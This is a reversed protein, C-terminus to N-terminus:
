SYLPHSNAQVRVWSWHLKLHEHWSWKSGGFGVLYGCAWASAESHDRGVQLPLPHRAFVWCLLLPLNLAGFFVCPQCPQICFLSLFDTPWHLKGMSLPLTFSGADVLWALFAAPWEVSQGLMVHFRKNVDEVVPVAPFVPCIDCSLNWTEWSKESALDWHRRPMSYVGPWNSCRIDAEHRFAVSCYGGFLASVQWFQGVVFSKHLGDPYGWNDDLDHIVLVQYQFGHHSPSGGHSLFGGMNNLIQRINNKLTKWWWTSWNEFSIVWIRLPLYVFFIYGTRQAVFFSPVELNLIHNASPIEHVWLDVKPISKPVLKEEM